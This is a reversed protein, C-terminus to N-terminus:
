HSLCSVHLSCYIFPPFSFPHHPEHYGEHDDRRKENAVGLFRGSNWAEESVGKKAKRKQRQGREWKRERFLRTLRMDGESQGMNFWCSGKENEREREGWISALSLTILGWRQIRESVFYKM